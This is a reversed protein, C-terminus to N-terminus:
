DEELAEPGGNNKDGLASFIDDFDRVRIAGKEQYRHPWRQGTEFCSNLIFLKREQKLAARAQTLTGGTEGAEVVITATSLAAMTENRQPFYRKHSLFPENAYRYFPVQSLLLHSAAIEDQLERNEPPYYHDIPTGIVGISLGGFDLAARMASTDIGRALGSVITYGEEVLGRALRAARLEGERTCKRTGVVSVCPSDLLGVDGRYYLLEPPHDAERLREPYQFDRYLSVGFKSKLSDIFKGVVASLESIADHKAALASLAESPLRPAERFLDAITRLSQKPLAWLTEYSRLEVLPSFAQRLNM